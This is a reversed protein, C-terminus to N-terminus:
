WDYGAQVDSAFPDMNAQRDENFIIFDKPIEEM